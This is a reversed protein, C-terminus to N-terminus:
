WFIWFQKFQWHQFITFQKFQWFMGFRRITRFQM